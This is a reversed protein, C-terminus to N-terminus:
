RKSPFEKNWVTDPIKVDYVHMKEPLNVEIEQFNTERWDLKQAQLVYVEHGAEAIDSLLSHYRSWNASKWRAMYPFLIKM